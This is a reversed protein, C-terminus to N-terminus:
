YFSTRTRHRPEAKIRPAQGRQWLLGDVQAATWHGGLSRIAAVLREVGHVAAARIEVEEPSGAALPEGRRIRELLSAPYALVGEMRLVHPVLNDAFATLQDGDLFRGPGRGEFALVLDAVTIQARKYFPVELEDYRAVDRFMPMEALRAVLVEARHDASAVLAEFRGGARERLLRGLDRLATAYRELLEAVEARGLDQGLVAALTDRRMAALETADWPGHEDFRRALRTAVTLYGSLGPLKCLAPFSGSGFNIADLTVVYALTSQPTGRHHHRTDYAPPGPAEALLQAALPEVAEEVLRVSRARAMVEACRERIRRFLGAPAPAEGGSRPAVTQRGTM